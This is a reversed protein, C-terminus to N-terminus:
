PGTCAVVDAQEIGAEEIALRVRQAEARRLLDREELLLLPQRERAAADDVRQRKGIVARMAAEPSSRASANSGVRDDIFDDVGPQAAAAAGPKRGADLPLRGRLGCAACFYM